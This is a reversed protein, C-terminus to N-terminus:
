SRTPPGIIGVTTSFSRQNRERIKEGLSQSPTPFELHILPGTSRPGAQSRISADADQATAMIGASARRRSRGWAASAHSSACPHLGSRDLPAQLVVSSRVAAGMSRRRPTGGGSGHRSCGGRRRSRGSRRCRPGESTRFASGLTRAGQTSRSRSRGSARGPRRPRAPDSSSWCAELPPRDHSRHQAMRGTHRGQRQHQGDPDTGDGRLRRRSRVGDHEGGVARHQRDRLGANRVAGDEVDAVRRRGGRKSTLAGACAGFTRM